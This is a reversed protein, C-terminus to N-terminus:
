IPFLLKHLDFNVAILRAPWFRTCSIELCNAGPFQLNTDSNLISM